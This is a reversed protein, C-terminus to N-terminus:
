DDDRTPPLAPVATVIDGDVAFLHQNAGDPPATPDLVTPKPPPIEEPGALAPDHLAQDVLQAMEARIEAHIDPPSPTPTRYTFPHQHQDSM